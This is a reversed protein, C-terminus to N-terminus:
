TKRWNKPTATKNKNKFSIRLHQSKTPHVKLETDLCWGLVFHLNMKYTLAISVNEIIRYRM